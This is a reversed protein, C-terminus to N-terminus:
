VETPERYVYSTLPSVNDAVQQYSPPAEDPHIKKMQDLLIKESAFPSEIRISPNEKILNRQHYGSHLIHENQGDDESSTNDCKITKQEENRLQLPNEYHHHQYDTKVSMVRLSPNMEDRKMRNEGSDTTTSSSSPDNVRKKMPLTLSPQQNSRLSQISESLSRHSGLPTTTRSRNLIIRRQSIQDDDEEEDDNHTSSPITLPHFGPLASAQRYSLSVSTSTPVIQRYSSHPNM